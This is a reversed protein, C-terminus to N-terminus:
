YSRTGGGEVYLGDSKKWFEVGYRKGKKVKFIETGQEYKVPAYDVLGGDDNYVKIVFGDSGGFSRTHTAVYLDDKTSYNYGITLQHKFKYSFGKSAAYISAPILFGSLLLTTAMIKKAKM